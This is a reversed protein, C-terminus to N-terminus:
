QALNKCKGRIDHTFQKVEAHYLVAIEYTVVLHCPHLNQGHHLKVVTTAILHPNLPLISMSSLAIYTIDFAFSFGEPVM